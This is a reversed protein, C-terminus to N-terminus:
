FFPPKKTQTQLYTLMFKSVSVASLCKYAIQIREIDANSLHTRQGIKANKDHPIITPTSRDIAFAYADYHMVGGYDYKTGLHDIETGEKKKDFAYKGGSYLWLM